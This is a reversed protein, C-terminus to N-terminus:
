GAIVQIVSDGEIAQGSTCRAWINMGAFDKIVKEGREALADALYDSVAWFELPEREYPEINLDECLGQWGAAVRQADEGINEFQTFALYGELDVVDWGADIAASEWDLVPSALEVAQEYLDLLAGSSYAAGDIITQVLFSQNLYVHNNVLNRANNSM